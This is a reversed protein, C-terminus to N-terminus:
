EEGPAPEARVASIWELPIEVGGVEVFVEGALINIGDVVGSMLYGDATFEVTRGILSSAQLLQQQRQMGALSDNMKWM